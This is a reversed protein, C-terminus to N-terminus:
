LSRARLASGEGWGQNQLVCRKCRWGARVHVASVGEVGIRRDIDPNDILGAFGPRVICGPLFSFNIKSNYAHQDGAHQGKVSSLLRRDLMQFVFHIPHVAIDIIESYRDLPLM